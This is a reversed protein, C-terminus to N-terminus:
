QLPAVQWRKGSTYLRLMLVGVDRHRDADPVLFVLTTNTSGPAM